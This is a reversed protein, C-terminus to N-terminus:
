EPDHPSLKKLREKIEKIDLELVRHRMYSYLIACQHTLSPRDKVIMFFACQGQLCERGVIPCQKESTTM